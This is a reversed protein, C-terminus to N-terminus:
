HHVGAGEHSEGSNRANAVATPQTPENRATQVGYSPSASVATPSQAPPASSSSGGGFWSGVGSFFSGVANKASSLGDGVADAAQGLKNIGAKGLDVAASGIEKGTNVAFEGVAKVKDVLCMASAKPNKLIDSISIEVTGNAGAGVGLVAALGATIRIKGDKATASAEGAVGAGAMASAKGSAGFALGCFEATAMGSVAAEACACASGKAGVAVGDKGVALVASGEGKVYAGANAKAQGYAKTLGEPDGLGGQAQAEVGILTIGAEGGAQAVFNGNQTGIGASGAAEGKLAVVAVKGGLYANKNGISGETGKEWAAKEVSGSTSLMTVNPVKSKQNGFLREQDEQGKAKLEARAADDKSAFQGNTRHLKGNKDEKLVPIPGKSDRWPAHELAHDGIDAGHTVGPTGRVATNSNMVQGEFNEKWASGAESHGEGEGSAGEAAAGEGAAPKATGHAPAHQAFANFSALSLALSLVLSLRGNRM